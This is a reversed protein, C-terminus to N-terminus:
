AFVVSSPLMLREVASALRLLLGQLKLTAGKSMMNVHLRKTKYGGSSGKLLSVLPEFELAFKFGCLGKCLGLNSLM